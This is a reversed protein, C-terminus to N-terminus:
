SGGMSMGPTMSPGPTMSMGRTTANIQSETIAKETSDYKSLIRGYTGDKIIKNVGDRFVTVLPSEKKFAVGTLDPSFTLSAAVFTSDVTGITKAQTTGTPVLDAQGAKVALQATAQDPLNVFHIAGQGGAVCKKSFDDLDPGYSGGSVRAVTLGCIDKYSAVTRNSSKPFIFTYLGQFMTVIDVVKLREATPALVSGMDFKGSQIGPITAAFEVQVFNVKYDMAAMAAVELEAAYGDYNGNAGRIFTPPFDFATATVTKTGSGSSGTSNSCAVLLGLVLVLPIGICSRSRM